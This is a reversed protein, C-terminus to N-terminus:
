RSPAVVNVVSDAAGPAETAGTPIRFRFTAGGGPTSEAWIRGGHAEVISRCIYLGLGTGAVRRATDGELRSFKQFLKPRDEPAIGPGQDIVAVELEEDRRRVEVRVRSGDHSYKVANGVLNDIVQSIRDADVEAVVEAEADLVVQPQIEPALAKLVSAALEVIAVRQRRLPSSPAELQSMTLIDATLRMLRTVQTDITGLMRAAETDASGARLIEAYGRIVTLPSRLDHAVLSVIEDKLREVRRRVSVDRVNVVYHRGEPTQFESVALEAPFTKGDSRRGECDGSGEHLFVAQGDKSELTGRILVQLSEGILERVAYRFIREAAPNLAEIRGEEDVVVLGDQMNDLIARSRTQSAALAQTREQVRRELDGRAEHLAIEAHRRESVEAALVLTMLTATGLFAQLLLLSSNTSGIAFPGTGQITALTARVAVVLAAVAAERPSFRTAVWALVPLVPFALPFGRPATGGFIAEVTLVLCALVAVGELARGRNWRWVSPTTVLLPLPVVLLDGAADGLWWTLWIGGLQDPSALGQLSLSAVGVSAAVTTSALAAIGFGFVGRARELAFRGGGLRTLIFAGLLAETTNGAAIALSGAMSGTTTVNVLFAGVFIAGAAWRGLLVVAALAIGAPPWVASASANLVALRLGLKGAAFYVAVLLVSVLLM